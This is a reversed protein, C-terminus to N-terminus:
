NKKQLLGLKKAKEIISQHLWINGKYGTVEGRKFERMPKGENMWKMVKDAVARSSDSSKKSELEKVAEIVEKDKFWQEPNGYFYYDREDLTMKEKNPIVGVIAPSKRNGKSELEALKNHFNVTHVVYHLFEHGLLGLSRSTEMYIIPPASLEISLYVLRNRKVPTPHAYVVINYDVDYLAEPIIHTPPFPTIGSAAEIREMANEMDPKRSMVEEYVWRPIEKRALARGVAKTDLRKWSFESM